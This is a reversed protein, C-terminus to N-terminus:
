PETIKEIELLSRKLNQQWNKNSEGMFGGIDGNKKIVRHCPIFLPLPNRSLINGIARYAKSGMKNGIESYTTVEGRNLSALNSIVKQSFKTPFKESVDLDINLDKTYDYLNVNKGSLYNLILEHLAQINGYNVLDKENILEHKMRKIYDIAHTGKEFFKVEDLKIKKEKAIYEFTILITANLQESEFYTSLINKVEQFLLLTSLNEKM